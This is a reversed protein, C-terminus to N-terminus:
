DREDPDDFPMRELDRRGDVVRIISAVDDQVQYFVVFPPASVSRLGQRIEGRSRGSLPHAALKVTAAIVRHVTQDAAQSGATNVLHTWIDQLDRESRASWVVSTRSAPM